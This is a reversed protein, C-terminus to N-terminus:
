KLKEELERAMREYDAVVRLVLAKAQPRTISDALVRLEAANKRFRDIKRDDDSSLNGMWGGDAKFMYSMGSALCEHERTDIPPFNGKQISSDTYDCSWCGV